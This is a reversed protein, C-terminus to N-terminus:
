RSTPGAVAYKSNKKKGRRFTEGDESSSSSDDAIYFSPLAPGIASDFLIM